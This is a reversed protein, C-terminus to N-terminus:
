VFQGAEDVVTEEGPEVQGEGAVLWLPDVHLVPHDLVAGLQPPPQAVAGAQIHAAVRGGHGGPDVPGEGVDDGGM